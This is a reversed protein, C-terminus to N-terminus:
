PGSSGPPRNGGPPQNGGPPLNGGPPTPSGGYPNHGGPPPLKGRGDPQHPKREGQRDGRFGPGRVIFGGPQLEGARRLQMQGTVTQGILRQAPPPMPGFARRDLLRSTRVLRGMNLIVPLPFNVADPRMVVMRGPPVDVSAGHKNTLHATGEIVIFKIWEGPSYEMMTTTGTIAASVTATRITAGGANKPVNLLFSGREIEMNRTGSKFRFVSNAGIRTVTEDPFGLEARSNRGTLITSAGTVTQGETATLARSSRESIRVDNVVKSLRATTFPAATSLTPVFICLAAIRAIKLCRNM